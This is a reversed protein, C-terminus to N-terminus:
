QAGIVVKAPSMVDRRGQLGSILLIFDERAALSENPDILNQAEDFYEYIKRSPDYFFRVYSIVVDLFDRYAEEYSM